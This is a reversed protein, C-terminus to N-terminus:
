VNHWRILDLLHNLWKLKHKRLRAAQIISQAFVLFQKCNHLDTTYFRGGFKLDMHWSTVRSGIGERLLGTNNFCVLSSEIFSWYHQMAWAITAIFDSMRSANPVVNPKCVHINPTVKQDTFCRTWLDVACSCVVPVVFASPRTLHTGRYCPEHPWCPVWRPGVPGLHAGHQGWSYQYRLRNPDIM